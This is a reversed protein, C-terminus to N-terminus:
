ENVEVSCASSHDAECGSRRAAHSIAVPVRQIPLRIRYPRTPSSLFFNGLGPIV